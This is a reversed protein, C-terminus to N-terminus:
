FLQYHRGRNSNRGGDYNYYSLASEMDAMGYPDRQKGRERRGRVDSGYGADPYYYDREDGYYSYGSLAGKGYIAQGRDGGALLRGYSDEQKGGRGRVGRGSYPGDQGTIMGRGYGRGMNSGQPQGQKKKKKNGGKNVPEEPPPLNLKVSPNFGKSKKKKNKKSKIRGHEVDDIFSNFDTYTDPKQSMLKSPVAIGEFVDPLIYPKIWLVEDTENSKYKVDKKYFLIGDVEFTSQRLCLDLGDMTCDYQYLPVFKFMNLDTINKFEPRKMIERKVFKMRDSYPYEKVDNSAWMICDLVFYTMMEEHYVCDLLTVVSPGFGYETGNGGPLVSLFYGPLRFGKKSFWKTEGDIAMVLCRQGVPCAVTCWDTDFNDPIGKFWKSEMLDMKFQRSRDPGRNKKKYAKREEREKAYRAKQEKVQEMHAAYTSYNAPKQQLMSEPIEIDLMEGIMYPKLWVVLPSAGFTYHAKKHYFLCGDFQQTASSYIQQLNEKKCSHYQLPVFKYPNLKSVEGAEPFEQLKSMMWFFRFDTDSDYVPHDKWNMIDLVYFTKEVEHYICDLIANDKYRGKQHRNGGPLHSPFSNVRYGNRGYATTAGKASVILCRKGWPCMVMLWEEEFDDPVEVMWESLMLQNRYYRGPKYSKKVPAQTDDMTEEGENDDLDDADDWVDEVLRRAHNAYDFRRNRQQELIAQRRSDQDANSTKRKYEAFRPHPAATSNPDSSVSFSTALSETLEDM